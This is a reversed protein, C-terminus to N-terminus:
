KDTPSCKRRKWISAVTFSAIIFEQAFTGKQILTKVKKPYTRLLPPVGPPAPTFFRGALAPSVLSEPEIGPDPLDGPSPFPLGDQRSFGMSLPAQCALTWPAALLRVLSLVCTCVCVCCGLFPVVCTDYPVEIKLTKLFRILPTREIDQSGQHSLHYLIWAPSRPKIGPDPFDGLPPCPLGSWYEQRSFGMSVPVQHAVTWPTVSLWVCSLAVSKYM